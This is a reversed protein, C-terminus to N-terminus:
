LVCCLVVCCLVVCRLVVFVFCFAGCLVVVFWPVAPYLDVRRMVGCCVVVLLGCRRLAVCCLAVCCSM